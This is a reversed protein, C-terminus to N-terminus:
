KQEMGLAASMMRKLNNRRGQADKRPDPLSNFYDMIKGHTRWYKKIYELADPDPGDPGCTVVPLGNHSADVVIFEEGHLCVYSGPGYDGGSDHEVIFTMGATALAECTSYMAYNAEYIDVQMVPDDEDSREEDWWKDDIGTNWEKALIRNIRGLDNRPFSITLSCCDGM